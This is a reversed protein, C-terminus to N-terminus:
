DEDYRTTKNGNENTEDVVTPAHEPSASSKIASNETETETETSGKKSPEVHDSELEAYLKHVYRCQEGTFRCEGRNFDRCLEEAHSYKCAAGRNCKGKRFDQCYRSRSVAGTGSVVPTSGTVSSRKHREELQKANVIHAYKCTDGRSCTENYFDGCRTLCQYLAGKPLTGANIVHAYKCDDGHTCKNNLFDKCAIYEIKSHDKVELPLRFAGPLAYM